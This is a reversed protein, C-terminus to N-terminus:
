PIFFHSSGPKWSSYPYLQYHIWNKTYDFNEMFLFQQEFFELNDLTFRKLAGDPDSVDAAAGILHQSGLAPKKGMKLYLDTQEQITRFGSTMLMPKGYFERICNLKYQLLHLNNVQDMTPDDGPKVLENLSIM